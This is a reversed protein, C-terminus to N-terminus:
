DQLYRLTKQLIQETTPRRLWKSIVANAENIAGTTILDHLVKLYENPLKMMLNITQKIETPARDLLCLLFGDNNLDGIMTQQLFETTEDSELLRISKTDKNALTIFHRSWSTKFLSMLHKENEIVDGNKDLRTITRWFQLQAEGIADEFSLINRVKWYHLHLYNLVYPKVINFDHLPNSHKSHM